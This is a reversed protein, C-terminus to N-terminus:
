ASAGFDLVPAIPKSLRAVILPLYDAEREILVCRFGEVVCAEATTGSGAFPDLVLGGPPTVLRVLWRMLDLPKVTPHAVRGLMSPDPQFDPEPCACASTGVNVQQRGCITCRKRISDALWTSAGDRQYTPRESTPAKAEYRWRPLDSPPASRRTELRSARTIYASIADVACGLSTTWEATTMTTGSRGLTAASLALNRSLIRESSDATSPLGLAQTVSHVPQTQVTSRAIATACSVCLNAASAALRASQVASRMQADEPATDDTIELGHTSSSEVTTAPINSSGSLSRECVWLMGYLSCERESRFTPFFRSAGGSDGYFADPNGDGGLSGAMSTSAHPRTRHVKGPMSGSTLTGSQRDLEAAAHSDLLVNPPWRGAPSGEVADPRNPADDFKFRSGGAGNPYSYAPQGDPTAVRCGDVNLAGTGWALVNAAVTGAALPKRALWWHEAAPKLATGWGQWRAAAPTAPATLNVVVEASDGGYTSGAFAHGVPVSASGIVERRAWAEGPANAPLIFPSFWDPAPGLLPELRAWQELTPTAVRHPLRSAWWGGMDSTGAAADLDNKNLGLETLRERIWAAGRMVVDQNGLTKNREIAKSVDLSKPFGSGFLHTICDRIEWGADEIGCATWHSTRPLAWVLAYGGPKTVRLAESMVEAMWAVWGVRGGRDKDWSKGMFAIGAPPDTVVADVSADPLTRLVDLCDGHFLRVSEDVYYPGSM